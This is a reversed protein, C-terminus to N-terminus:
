AAISRKKKRNRKLSFPQYGTIAHRDVSLCNPFNWQEANKWLTIAILIRVQVAIIGLVEFM